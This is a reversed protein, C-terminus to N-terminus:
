YAAAYLARLESRDAAPPTMHLEPRATAEDACRDLQEETVELERLRTSGTLECLRAAALGLDEGLASALRALADPFRRKLAEASHPLMIANAPGHGVGAFRVLTQSLVHHLGYGTSGIVYGALLAGLALADRDPERAAFGAAILRASELAALRAVPNSLPTLPGEVAHGLANLASAALEPVAQSASLSPDGIVIAPRVRPTDGGVGAAHRHIATMEAGSLTTPIAAVRRPPDAAALAKAVDIVRGGGLAVLLEGDVSSRLQGALEDVRGPGVDHVTGAGAAVAPAQAAARETTLLTYGTGLEEDAQALAGRGFVILREGDHWRFSKV